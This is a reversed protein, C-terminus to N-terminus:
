SQSVSIAARTIQRSTRLVDTCLALLFSVLWLGLGNPSDLGDGDRGLGRIRQCKSTCVLIMPGSSVISIM